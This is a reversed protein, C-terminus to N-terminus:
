YSQVAKQTDFQLRHVAAFRGVTRFDRMAEGGKRRSSRGRRASRTSPGRSSSTPIRSPPTRTSCQAHVDCLSSTLPHHRFLVSHLPALSSGGEISEQAWSGDPLQRTMILRCGRRIPEPDPYQATLLMIVAADRRVSLSILTLRSPVRDFVRKLCAESSFLGGRPACVCGM